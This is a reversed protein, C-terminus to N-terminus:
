ATEQPVPRQEPSTEAAVNTAETPIWRGLLSLLGVGAVVLAVAVVVAAVRTEAAAHGGGADLLLVVAVTSLTM